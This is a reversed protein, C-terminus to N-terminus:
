RRIMTYLATCGTHLYSWFSLLRGKKFLFLAALVQTQAYELVFQVSIRNLIQLARQFDSLGSEVSTPFKYARSLAVMLLILCSQLDDQFGRMSIVSAIEYTTQDCIIPFLPCTHLFFYELLPIIESPKTQETAVLFDPLPQRSEECSFPTKRLYQSKHTVDEPSTPLHQYTNPTENDRSASTRLSDAPSSTELSDIAWIRSAPLLLKSSSNGNVVSSPTPPDAKSNRQESELSQNHDLDTQQRDPGNSALITDLKEEVQGLRQLLRSILENQSEFIDATARVTEFIIDLLVGQGAECRTTVVFVV